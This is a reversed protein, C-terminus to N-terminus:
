NKRKCCMVGQMDQFPLMFDHEQMIGLSEFGTLHQHPPAADRDRERLQVHRDAPAGPQGDLRHARRHHAGLLRVVGKVHHCVLM